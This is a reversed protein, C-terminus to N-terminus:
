APPRIYRMPEAALALGTCALLLAASFKWIAKWRLYNKPMFGILHLQWHLRRQRGRSQPLVM